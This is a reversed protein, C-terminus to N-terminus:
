AVASAKPREAGRSRDAIAAPIPAPEAGVSARAPELDELEWDVAFDRGVDAPLTTPRSTTLETSRDRDSSRVDLHARLPRAAPADLQRTM